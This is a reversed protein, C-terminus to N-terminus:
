SMFLAYFERGVKTKLETVNVDQWSGHLNEKKESEFVPNTM